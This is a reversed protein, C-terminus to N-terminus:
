VRDQKSSATTDTLSTTSWSNAACTYPQPNNHPEVKDREAVKGNVVISMEVTSGTSVFLIQHNSTRLAWENQGTFMMDVTRGDATRGSYKASTFDETAKGDVAIKWLRGAGALKVTGVAKNGDTVGGLDFTAAYQTQKWNGILCADVPGAAAESAPTPAASTGTGPRPTATDNDRKRVALVVVIAVVLVALVALSAILAVAGTNRRPGGTSPASAPPPQPPAASGPPGYGASSPPVPYASPQAAYPSHQAAYPSPQAPYPSPQAPYAAPQPAYPSPQPAYPPPYAAPYPESGAPPTVEYSPYSEPERGDNWQTM